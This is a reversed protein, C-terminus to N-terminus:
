GSFARAGSISKVSQFERIGFLGSERGLGSAKVGGFPAGAERSRGNVQIMGVRLQRCVRDIQEDDACQIYAALGFPTDNALRIAEEETDFPTLTLVPGFAEERFIAMDPTVDAFVTPRAYFGDALGAPRGPGGAVLRAGEAVAAEILAQVRNFQAESVLPGLHKGPRDPPAVMTDRAAEAALGVVRDYIPREVLMRSAANCSQGANRFCHALGQHVALGPDCDAFLLNPSKGGLELIAKKLNCGAAEAILRGVATSGTFSVIDVGSHAILAAGTEADGILHNFVGQPADADAVCEAFLAGSHPALESSKLVMSCGAALAAGVKLATQNLPWNWPTILAAVGLPEFRVRHAPDTSLPADDVLTDLASATARLHGLAADVHQARAFDVPAGIESSITRAFDERRREIADILRALLSLRQSKPSRGWGGDFARRASRVARDVEAADAFIARGRVRGNAPDVLAAGRAGKPPTMEGEIFHLPPTPGHPM